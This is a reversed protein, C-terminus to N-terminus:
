CRRSGECVDTLMRGAKGSVVALLSLEIQVTEFTGGTENALVDTL